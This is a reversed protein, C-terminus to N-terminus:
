GEQEKGLQRLFAHLFAHPAPNDGVAMAALLTVHNGRPTTTPELDLVHDQRYPAVGLPITLTWSKGSRTWAPPQSAAHRSAMLDLLDRLRFHKSRTGAIGLFEGQESRVVLPNDLLDQPPQPGPAPEPAAPAPPEPGLPTLSFRQRGGDKTRICIIRGPVEAATDQDPPPPSAPPPTYELRDLRALASDLRQALLALTQTLGDLTQALDQDPAPLAESISLRRNSYLRPFSNTLLRRIEQASLGQAFGDRIAVCVQAALPPFRLPKGATIAPIFGPFKRRYSKITTVSVGLARSLDAHTLSDDSM